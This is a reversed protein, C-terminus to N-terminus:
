GSVKYFSCKNLSLGFYFVPSYFLSPHLIIIAIRSNQCFFFFLSLSEIWTSM